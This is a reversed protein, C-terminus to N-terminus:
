RWTSRRKHEAEERLHLRDLKRQTAEDRKDYPVVYERIHADDLGHNRYSARRKAAREVQAGGIDAEEELGALADRIKEAEKRNSAKEFDYINRHQEIFYKGFAAKSAAAYKERPGYTIRNQKIAINNLETQFKVIQKELGERFTQDRGYTGALDLLVTYKEIIFKKDLPGVDKLKLKFKTLDFIEVGGQTVIGEGEPNETLVVDALARSRSSPCQPLVVCLLALTVLAATMCASYIVLTNVSRQTAVRSKKPIQPRFLM